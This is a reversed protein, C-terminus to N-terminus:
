CRGGLIMILERLERKIDAPDSTYDSVVLELSHRLMRRATLIANSAQRASKFGFRRALETMSPPAHEHLTPQLFGELFVGWIDTRAKQLYYDRLRDLAQDLVTRAWAVDFTDHCPPVSDAFPGAPTSDATPLPDPPRRKQRNLRRWEDIVFNDLAHLLFTRFRGREPRATKLIQRELIKKEIFSHCWDEAEDPPVHFRTTLHVLLPARYALLLDSLAQHGLPSEPQRARSVSSWHTSPFAGGPNSLDRIM